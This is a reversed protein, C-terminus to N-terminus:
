KVTTSQPFDIFLEREEGGSNLVRQSILCPLRASPPGLILKIVSLSRVFSAQSTHGFPNGVAWGWTSAEGGLGAGLELGPASGTERPVSPCFSHPFGASSLQHYASSPSPPPMSLSLPPPPLLPLPFTTLSTLNM